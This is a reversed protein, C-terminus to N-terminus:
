GYNFAVKQCIQNIRDKGESAIILVDMCEAVHSDRSQGALVVFPMQCFPCHGPCAGELTGIEGLLQPSKRSQSECRTNLGSTFSEAHKEEKSKLTPVHSSRRRTRSTQSRSVAQSLNSMSPLDDDFDDVSDTIDNDVCKRTHTLGTLDNSVQKGSDITHRRCTQLQTNEISERRSSITRKLSSSNPKTSRQSDRFSPSIKVDLSESETETKFSSKVSSTKRKKRKLPTFSWIDEEDDDINAM